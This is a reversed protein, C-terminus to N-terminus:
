CFLATPAAHRRVENNEYSSKTPTCLISSHVRQNLTLQEVLQAVCGCRRSFWRRRRMYGGSETIDLGAPDNGSLDVHIIGFLPNRNESFIM